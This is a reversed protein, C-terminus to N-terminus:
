SCGKAHKLRKVKERYEVIMLELWDVSVKVCRETGLISLIEATGKGHKKDINIGHQYQMGSRFRNCHKCQANVNREDWRTRKRDRQIFHGADMDHWGFRRGCTICQCLGFEDMDRLRIYDSFVKDLRAMSNKLSPTKVRKPLLFYNQQSM